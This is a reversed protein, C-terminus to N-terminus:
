SHISAGARFDDVPRGKTDDGDTSTVGAANKKEEACRAEGCRLIYSYVSALVDLEVESAAGATPRYITPPKNM